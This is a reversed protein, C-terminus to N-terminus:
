AYSVIRRYFLHGVKMLLQLLLHLLSSDSIAGHLLSLFLVVAASEAVDMVEDSCCM